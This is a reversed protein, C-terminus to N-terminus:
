GTDLDYKSRAFDDVCVGSGVCVKDAGETAVAVVEADDGGKVHTEERLVSGPAAEDVVIDTRAEVPKICKGREDAAGGVIGVCGKNITVDQTGAEFSQNM